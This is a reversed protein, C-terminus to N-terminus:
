HIRRGLGQFKLLHSLADEEESHQTCHLGGSRQEQLKTGRAQVVALHRIFDSQAAVGVALIRYYFTDNLIRFELHFDFANFTRNVTRTNARQHATGHAKGQRESSSRASQFPTPRSCGARAVTVISSHTVHPKCRGAMTNLLVCVQRYVCFILAHSRSESCTSPKFPESAAGTPHFRHLATLFLCPLWVFVILSHSPPFSTPFPHPHPPLLPCRM